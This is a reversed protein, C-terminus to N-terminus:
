LDLDLQLVEELTARPDSEGHLIMDVAQILPLDLDLREALLVAEAATDVGEVSGDVQALAAELEEGRALAAAVAQHRETSGVRRPILEGVGALGRFTADDAGLAVGVRIAEILGRTLLIGRATDGLELADSLGAALIAVNAIAGAVEVGILDRTGHVRVPTGQTTQRIVEVADDFPSAAVAVIPRGEALERIHLPGGLAVIQKICTESKVVEHPLVFGEDVGRCAHVAIQDGRAVDGLQSAVERLAGAPVAFIVIDASACADAVTEPFSVKPFTRRLERRAADRRVWTSLPLGRASLLRLIAQAFRGGGLVAIEKQSM